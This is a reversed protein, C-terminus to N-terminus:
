PNLIFGGSPEKRPCEDKHKCVVFPKEYHDSYYRGTVKCDPCVWPYDGM